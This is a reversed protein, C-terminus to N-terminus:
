IQVMQEGNQKRGNKSQKQIEIIKRILKCKKFIIESIVIKIPSKDENLVTCSEQVIKIKNIGRGLM